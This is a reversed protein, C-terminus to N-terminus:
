KLIEDLGHVEVEYIRTASDSGQTPKTITLTVYRANIPAFTDTTNGLSNKTINVVDTFDVGDESVSITYAKTNMDAGENGSEAHGISVESVTKVSELDITLEHPPTGIACWKSDTSGDVAFNPAEDDNAYSSAETPKGQSLLALDDKAKESVVIYSDITKEDEGSDSKALLSVKYTGEESYTVVPDIETSTEQDAGPFNWTLETTNQSSLNQFTVSEGPAILTRSATFNAKPLSIDPWDMSVSAATGRELLANVPVVEFTSTDSGDIRPLTNIYFNTTKSVGLLSKTKEENIRYIEYHNVPENVNWTLRVGALLSDEDFASDEVIVDSVSSTDLDATDTITVNGLHMEFGDTTKDASFQYSITRVAKNAFTSVNYNVTTWQEGIKKDAQVTETSGDDFTLVVDLQTDTNAKATTTFTTDKTLPFDASYLKATSAKNKEMTGRFKLSNGGYYAQTFDLSPTLTNAGEHEVIWRYTPLVDSVSRNNWDLESVKEGGIFFNYGNGVNFNTTFPLASLASKEIAYHSIGRWKTDTKPEVITPDGQSNIWFLNEKLQFDELSDSSSYPWDAAYLGLSTYTENTSKEFLDWRIPTSFGNEQVDVGAYIKYPNFGIETAKEHSAKLLEEDALRDETWWFNLFMSDAVEKGDKDILFLANEDNLANQWDVVGDSTMSDYYMIEFRDKSQEKFQRIFNSMQVAHEKTLPQEENGETEQNIFWGDFQYLEAVEILKDVMPFDGAEDQQLFDDFWEMKGNFSMPPFFITGLIPVGNKHAANTVDPSPPVILGEGSSGGWYVMKDIYQWYSFTNSDFTNLGHPANGSTSGNMISLAVVETEKNQTENVPTLNDKDVREALPTNSVNFPLDPDEDAEWQLLEDPFWFSSIPQNQMIIEPNENEETVQYSATSQPDSTKEPASSNSEKCGALVILLSFLLLLMTFPYRTHLVKNNKM